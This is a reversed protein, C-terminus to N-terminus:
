RVPSRGCRASVSWPRRCAAWRCSYGGSERIGFVLVLPADHGVQSVFQAQVITFGVFQQDIAAIAVDDGGVRGVLLRRGRRGRRGTRLCAPRRGTSDGAERPGATFSSGSARRVPDVLGSASFRAVATRTLTRLRSALRKDIPLQLHRHLIQAIFQRLLLLPPRYQTSLVSYQTSLVSHQASLVGAGKSGAGQEWSGAGREM